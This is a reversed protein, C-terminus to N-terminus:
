VYHANLTPKNLTTWLRIFVVEFGNNGQSKFSNILAASM